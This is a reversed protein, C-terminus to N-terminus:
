AKGIERVRAELALRDLKALPLSAFLEIRHKLIAAVLAFKRRKDDDTGEFRSPDEVGWHATMPHGPWVPCVEGAADDCVTIIFDMVPAGEVAFEDWGKSGLGDSSLHLRRITELALPNPATGPASGASYASFRGKGIDRLLAEAIISRASNHTCLFLVNVPKDLAKVEIAQSLLM